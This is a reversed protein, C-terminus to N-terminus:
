CSYDSSEAILTNWNRRLKKLGGKFANAFESGVEALSQETVQSLDEHFKKAAETRVSDIHPGYGNRRMSIDALVLLTAAQFLQPLVDPLTPRREIKAHKMLTLIIDGMPEAAARVVRLDEQTSRFDDESAEAVVRSLAAISFYTQFVGPQSFLLDLGDPRVPETVTEPNEDFGKTLVPVIENNLRDKWVALQRNGDEFGLDGLDYNPNFFINMTAEVVEQPVGLLEAIKEKKIWDYSIDGIYDEIIGDKREYAEVRELKGVAESEFMEAIGELPELLATRILEKPVNYGLMWLPLYVSEAYGYIEFLRYIWVAQEVIARGNTWTSESRGKGKGLGIGRRDFHPLLAKSKWDNIRRETVDRYGLRHLRAVLAKQTLELQKRM